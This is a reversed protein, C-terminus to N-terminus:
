CPIGGFRDTANRRRRRSAWLWALGLTADGGCRRPALTLDPAPEAPPPLACLEALPRVELARPGPGDTAGLAPAESARDCLDSGADPPGAGVLGGDPAPSLDLGALDVFCAATCAVDLPGASGVVVNDRSDGDISGDVVTNSVARGGPRVVVPAGVVINRRILGGADIGVDAGLVVNTAVDAAPARIATGAGPGIVNDFVIGAGTVDLAVGSWGGVVAGRVVVPGAGLTRIPAPVGDFRDDLLSAGFTAGLAAVVGADLATFQVAQVTLGDALGLVGTGAGSGEVALGYLRVIPRVVVLGVEGPPVVITAPQALDASRLLLAENEEVVGGVPLVCPGPYDGPVLEAVDGPGMVALADCWDESPLVRWVQYDHALAAPPVWWM